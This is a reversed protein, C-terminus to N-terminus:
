TSSPLALQVLQIDPVGDLGGGTFASVYQGAAGTPSGIDIGGAVAQCQTADNIGAGACTSNLVSAIRPTVGATSVLKAAVSGSRSNVFLQRVEPTEVWTSASFDLNKSRLGEYSFFFFMKDKWGPGGLSAGFQRFNNNVRAPKEGQPGHFGNFA